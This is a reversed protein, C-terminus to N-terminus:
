SKPNSALAKQETEATYLRTRLFRPLDLAIAFTFRNNRRNM